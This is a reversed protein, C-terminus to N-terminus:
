PSQYPDTATQTSRNNDNRSEVLSSDEWYSLLAKLNNTTLQTTWGVQKCEEAYLTAERQPQLVAFESSAFEGSPFGRGAVDSRTLM